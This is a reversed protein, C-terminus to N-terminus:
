KLVKHYKTSQLEAESKLRKLAVSYAIKRVCVCMCPLVNRWACQAALTAAASWFLLCSNRCAKLWQKWDTFHCLTASNSFSSIQHCKYNPCIQLVYAFCYGCQGLAFPDLRNRQTVQMSWQWVPFIWRNPFWIRVYSMNSCPVAGRGLDLITPSRESDSEVSELFDEIRLSVSASAMAGCSACHRGQNLARPEPSEQSALSACHVNRESSM